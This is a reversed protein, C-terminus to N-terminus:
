KEGWLTGLVRYLVDYVVPVSLCLSSSHSDLRSLGHFSSIGKRSSWHSLLSLLSLTTVAAPFESINQCFVTIVKVLASDLSFPDLYM